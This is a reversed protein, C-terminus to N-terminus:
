ILLLISIGANNVLIDIGRGYTALVWAKLEHVSEDSEVDVRHFAVNSLNMETVISSASASRATCIITISDNKLTALSALQKM